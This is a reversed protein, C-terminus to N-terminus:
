KSDFIKPKLKNKYFVIYKSFIFINKPVPKACISYIKNFFYLFTRKIKQYKNDVLIRKYRTVKVELTSRIPDHVGLDDYKKSKLCLYNSKSRPGFM